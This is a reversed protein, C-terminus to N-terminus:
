WLVNVLCIKTILKSISCFPERNCNHVRPSSWLDNKIWDLWYDSITAHWKKHRYSARSFINITYENVRTFSIEIIKYASKLYHWENIIHTAILISSTNLAICLKKLSVTIGNCHVVKASWKISLCTVNPGRYWWAIYPAILILLKNVM